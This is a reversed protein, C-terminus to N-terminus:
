TTLSSVVIVAGISWVFAAVVSAGILAIGGPSRSFAVRRKLEDRQEGSLAAFRRARGDRTVVIYAVFAFSLVLSVAQFSSGFVPILFPIALGVALLLVLTRFRKTREGPMLNFHGMRRALADFSTFILALGPLTVLGILTRDDV